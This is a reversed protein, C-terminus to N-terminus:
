GKETDCERWFNASASKCYRTNRIWSTMGKRRDETARERQNKLAKVAQGGGERETTTDRATPRKHLAYKPKDGGKRRWGTV